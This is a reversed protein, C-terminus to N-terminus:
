TPSTTSAQRWRSTPPRDRVPRSWSCRTAHQFRLLGRMPRPPSASSAGSAGTVHRRSWGTEDMLPEVRARGRSGPLQRRLWAVEPSLAPLRAPSRVVADLLRAAAEWSPADALREVLGSGNRGLADDLPVVADTYAEVDGLLALAGAATLEVQVGLQHGAVGTMSPASQNGVVFARTATAPGRTTRRPRGDRRRLALILAVGRRAVERRLFGDRDVGRLRRVRPRATPRSPDRRTPGLRARGARLGPPHPRARGGDTM